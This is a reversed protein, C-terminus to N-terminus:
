RSGPRALESFRDRGTAAGYKFLQRQIDRPHRVVAPDTPEGGSASAFFASEHALTGMMSPPYGGSGKVKRDTAGTMERRLKAHNTSGTNVQSKSRLFGGPPTAQLRNLYILLDSKPSACGGHNAWKSLWSKLGHRCRLASLPWDPVSKNGTNQRSCRITGIKGSEAPM